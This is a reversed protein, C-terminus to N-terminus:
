IKLLCQEHTLVVIANELYIKCLDFNFSPINENLHEILLWTVFDKPM